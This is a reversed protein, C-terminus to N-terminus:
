KSSHISQRTLMLLAKIKDLSVKVLNGPFITFSNSRWPVFLPTCIKNLANYELLIDTNVSLRVAENTSDEKKKGRQTSCRWNWLQWLEFLSVFNYYKHQNETDSHAGLCERKCYGSFVDHYPKKKPAIVVSSCVLKYRCHLLRVLSFLM